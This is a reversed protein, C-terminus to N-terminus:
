FAVGSGYFLTRVLRSFLQAMHIFLAANNPESRDMESYLTRLNQAADEYNGKRCLAYLIRYKM